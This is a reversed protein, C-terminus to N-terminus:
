TGSLWVYLIQCILAVTLYCLTAARCQAEIWCDVFDAPLSVTDTELHTTNWFVAFKLSWITYLDSELVTLMLESTLSSNVEM